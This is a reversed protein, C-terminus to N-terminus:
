GAFRGIAVVVALIFLVANVTIERYEGMRAHVVAGGVMVVALGSAALPTLAPAIDLAWPLVLGFAALIEVTGIARVQPTTASDVWHMRTRLKEKPQTVKATGAAAFAAALLIQLVWLFINV